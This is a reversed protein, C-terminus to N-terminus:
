AWGFFRSIWRFPTIVFNVLRQRASKVTHWVRQLVSPPTPQPTSAQLTPANGAAIQQARAATAAHQQRLAGIDQKNKKQQMRALYASHIAENRLNLAQRELSEDKSTDQSSTSLEASPASTNTTLNSAGQIKELLERPVNDVFKNYWEQRNDPKTTLLNIYTAFFDTYLDKEISEAIDKFDKKRIHYATIYEHDGKRAPAIRFWLLEKSSFGLISNCREVSHNSTEKKFFVDYFHIREKTKYVMLNAYSVTNFIEGQNGQIVTVGPANEGFNTKILDFRKIPLYRNDQYELEVFCVNNDNSSVIHASIIGKEIVYEINKEPNLYHFKYFYINRKTRNTTVVYVCSGDNSFQSALIIEGPQEFVQEVYERKKNKEDYRSYLIGHRTNTCYAFVDADTPNFFCRQVKIDGVFRKEYIDASTGNVLDYRRFILRNNEDRNRCYFLVLLTKGDASLAYYIKSVDEPMSLMALLDTKGISHVLVNNDLYAISAIEDFGSAAYLDDQYNYPVDSLSHSQSSFQPVAKHASVDVTYVSKKDEAEKLMYAYLNGKQVLSDKILQKDTTGLLHIIEYSKYRGFFSGINYTSLVNVIDKKLFAFYKNEGIIQIDGFNIDQGAKDAAAVKLKNTFEHVLFQLTPNLAHIDIYSPSVLINFAKICLLMDQPTAKTLEPILQSKTYFDIGQVIVDPRDPNNAHIIEAIRFLLKLSEATYGNRLIYVPQNYIHKEGKIYPFQEAVERSVSIRYETNDNKDVCLFSINKGQDACFLSTCFFLLSLFLKIM